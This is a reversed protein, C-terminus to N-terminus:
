SSSAKIHPAQFAAHTITKVFTNTNSNFKAGNRYTNRGCTSELHRPGTSAM